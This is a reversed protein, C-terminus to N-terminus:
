GRTINFTAL